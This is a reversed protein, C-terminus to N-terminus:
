WICLSSSALNGMGLLAVSERMRWIVRDVIAERREDGHLVM